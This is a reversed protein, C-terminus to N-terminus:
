INDNKRNKFQELLEFFLEFAEKDSSTHKNMLSVWGETSLSKFYESTVWQSFNWLFDFLFSDRENEVLYISHGARIGYIFARLELLNGIGSLSPRQKIFMLNIYFPSM